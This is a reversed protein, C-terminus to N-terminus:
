SNKFIVYAFSNQTSFLLKRLKNDKIIQRIKKYDDMYKDSEKFYKNIDKLQRNGYDLERFVFYSLRENDGFIIKTRGKWVFIYRIESKSIKYQFGRANAFEIYDDYFKIKIRSLSRVLRFCKIHLFLLRGILVLAILLLINVFCFLVDFNFTLKIFNHITTAIIFIMFFLLAIAYSLLFYDLIRRWKSPMVTLICNDDM